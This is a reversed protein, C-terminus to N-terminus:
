KDHALQFPKVLHVSESFERAVRVSILNQWPLGEERRGKRGACEQAGEVPLRSPPLLFPSPLSQPLLQPSVSPTPPCLSLSTPISKAKFTQSSQMLLCVTCCRM